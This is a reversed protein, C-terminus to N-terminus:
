ARGGALLRATAKVSPNAVNLPWEGRIARVAEQAIRERLRVASIPSRSGTHPTTLVNSMSRLPSDSPLPESEFVDLGAGAIWGAQLAEILAKEDVVPGRSTNILFASEKMTRLQERGILHRTESTLPTHLSVFDSGALLTDLDVRQFGEGRVAADDVYPDCVLVEMSLAQGKRATAMGLRGAGVIGLTQQHVSRVNASPKQDWGGAHISDNLPILQKAWVLLFTLAHNSVEETCFDPVHVVAIGNDTAAELDVNDVGVGYRAVIRCIPLGDLVRRTLPVLGNLVVDAGRALEVVEDESRCRSGGLDFGADRLLKGELAEVLREGRVDTHVALPKGM